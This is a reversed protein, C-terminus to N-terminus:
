IFGQKSLHGVIENFVDEKSKSADIIVINDNLKSKLELFNARIKKMFELKEFKEVGDRSNGIRSLAIEPTVDLIFAVNPKLFSKQLSSIKEFPIGQAQQFAYTSYYYRDCLVFKRIEGKEEKLFPLIVNELHEERDKTYLELMHEAKEYPDKDGKLIKRVQLGYTGYTPERTTLIINRRNQEFLFNHLRKIQEGKGCGDLGDIVIFVGM